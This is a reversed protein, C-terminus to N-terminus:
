AQGVEDVPIKELMLMYAGANNVQESSCPRSVSDNCSYWQDGRRVFSTYHGGQTSKGSHNVCSVLRYLVPKDSGPNVLHALDINDKDFAFSDAIRFPGTKDYGYRKLQFCIVAPPNKDAISLEREYEDLVVEGDELEVRWANIEDKIKEAANEKILQELSKKQGPKSISLPFVQFPETQSSELHIAEPMVDDAQDIAQENAELVLDKALPPQYEGKTKTKLNFAYNMAQLIVACFDSSDQQELRDEKILTPHVGADFVANRLSVLAQNLKKPTADASQYAQVLNILKEKVPKWKEYDNKRAQYAKETENAGKVPPKGISLEELKNLLSPSSLLAQMTSIAYCNNGGNIIGIPPREIASCSSPSSSLKSSALSEALLSEQLLAELEKNKGITQSKPGEGLSKKHADLCRLYITKNWEFNADQKDAKTLNEYAKNLLQCFPEEKEAIKQNLKEELNAFKNELVEIEEMISNFGEIIQYKTQLEKFLDKNQQIEVYIQSLHTLDKDNDFTLKKVASDLGKFENDIDKLVEQVLSPRDVPQMNSLDSESKSPSTETSTPIPVSPAKGAQPKEKVQPDIVLMSPKSAQNVKDKRKQELQGFIQNAKEASYTVAVRKKLYSEQTSYEKDILNLDLKSFEKAVRTLHTERYFGFINRLVRQFM